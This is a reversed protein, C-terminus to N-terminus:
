AFRHFHGFWWDDADDNGNQRTNRRGRLWEGTTDKHGKHVGVGVPLTELAFYYISIVYHNTGQCQYGINLFVDLINGNFGQLEEALCAHYFTYWQKIIPDCHSWLLSETVVGLLFFCGFGASTYLRSVPMHIHAASMCMRVVCVNHHWTNM